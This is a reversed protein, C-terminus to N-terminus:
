TAVSQPVQAALLQDLYTVERRRRACTLRDRTIDFDNAHMPFTRQRQAVSAELDAIETVINDRVAQVQEKSLGEAFRAIAHLNADSPLM